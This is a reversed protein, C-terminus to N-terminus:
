DLWIWKEEGSPLYPERLYYIRVRVSGLAVKLPVNAAELERQNHANPAVGIMQGMDTATRTHGM